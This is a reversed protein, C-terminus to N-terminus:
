EASKEEFQAQLPCILDRIETLIESVTQVGFILGKIETVCFFSGRDNEWPGFLFFNIFFPNGKDYRLLM